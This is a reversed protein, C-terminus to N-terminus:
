TADEHTAQTLTTLNEALNAATVKDLGEIKIPGAASATTVTVTALGFMQQLPGHETDVTQIRSLPALRWERWLWGSSAYVADSTVEWRHFRFKHRPVVLVSVLGIILVIVLATMLLPRWAPLLLIPVLLVAFMILLTILIQITWYIKARKDVANKPLRLRVTTQSTKQM